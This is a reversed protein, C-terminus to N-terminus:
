VARLVFLYGNVDFGDELRLVSESCNLVRYGAQKACSSVYSTEHQFRGTSALKFGANKSDSGLPLAEVSFALLGATNQRKRCAVLIAEIEGFYNFVDTAIFVDVPLIESELYATIESVLLADYVGRQRSKEIMESSIDIGILTECIAQFYKGALGTGCGLDVLKKCNKFADESQAVDCFVDFLHKPTKYALRSILREDFHSSFRDFLNEVYARPVRAPPEAFGETSLLFQLTDTDIDPDMGNERMREQQYRRMYKIAEEKRARRNCDLGLQYLAEANCPEAQVLLQLIMTAEQQFGMSQFRQALLLSPKIMFHSPIIHQLPLPIRAIVEDMTMQSIKFKNLLNDM